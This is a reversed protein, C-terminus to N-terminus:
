KDRDAMAELVRMGITLPITAVALSLTVIQVMATLALSPGFAGGASTEPAEEGTAAAADSRYVWGSDHTYAADDPLDFSLRPKKKTPM